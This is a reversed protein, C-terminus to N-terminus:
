GETTTGDNGPLNANTNYEPGLRGVQGADKLAEIQKEYDAQSVVKVQFLMDAHYEGCLEACKGQYTGIKEPIFYMHNTQAPIMDKKYLFDVVWFSHAVDRSEIDIQVKKDVPLYLTPLKSLDVSGDANLRDQVQVGPSYVKEDLYNFDWSWRKGFVEIKVDPKGPDTEIVAQDRATFAFFGLVLILPVITYFIEIPMNYRLQVPLGTQGKRRRYVVAAWIILGWTIVGVALLVIWSNVWLSTVRETHNTVGPGGPLFGALQQQSCGALVLAVAGVLPVVAWRALRSRRPRNAFPRNQPRNSRM